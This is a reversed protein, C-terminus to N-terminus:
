PSAARRCAQSAITYDRLASFLRQDRVNRDLRSIVEDALEAADLCPQPVTTRTLIRPEAATTPTATSTTVRAAAPERDLTAVRVILIGLVLVLLLNVALAFRQPSRLLRPAPSPAPATIAGTREAPPDDPAHSTHLIERLGIAADVQTRSSERLAGAAARLREDIDSGVQQPGEHVSM